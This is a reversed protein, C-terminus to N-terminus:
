ISNAFKIAWKWGRETPEFRAVPSIFKENDCFHPDLINGNVELLEKMTVDTAYVLIKQGEYNTCDPYLVKVVLARHKPSIYHSIVRFNRPNPNPLPVPLVVTVTKEATPTVRQMARTDHVSFSSKLLGPLGM